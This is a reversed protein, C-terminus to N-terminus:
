RVEQEPFGRVLSFEVSGSAGDAATCAVYKRVFDAAADAERHYAVEIEVGREDLLVVLIM